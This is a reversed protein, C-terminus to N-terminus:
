CGVEGADYKRCWLTVTVPVALTATVASRASWCCVSSSCEVEDGIVFALM